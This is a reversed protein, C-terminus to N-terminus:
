LVKVRYHFKQIAGPAIDSKEHWRLHTYESTPVIVEKLKGNEDKRLRKVPESEWNKGGDLSVQFDSTVSTYASNQIYLTNQPVPVSIYQMALPKKAKSTYTLQYELVNGPEAVSTPRLSENGKANEVVFADMKSELLSAQVNMAGLLATAALLIGVLSKSQM